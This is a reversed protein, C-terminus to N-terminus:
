ARGSGAPDPAPVADPVRAAFHTRMRERLDPDTAVALTTCALAKVALLLADRGRDTLTREGFERTHPATGADCIAIMPHIVPFHYSLNGIDLSGMKERPTTIVEAGMEDLVEKFVEAMPENTITDAYQNEPTLVEYTCGTALAIGEIARLVKAKVEELYPQDQARVSFRGEARDPVVNPAKGGDTIIGPMRVDPRLHKKMQDLRLFVQILADLANVGAEPTVAAHAAKGHFVLTFPFAALSTTNVRTEYSPHVMLAGDVGAFAGAQLLNVKGGITEEAPTGVLEVTGPFAPELRKCVLAAGMSAAAIFNHGCGHGIGPLADYEALLAVRPGEGRGGAIRGRFATEMGGLGREVPFGHRELVRCLYASSQREELGLEPTDYVSRSIACIEERLEEAVQYARAKLKRDM